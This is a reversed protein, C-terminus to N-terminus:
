RASRRRRWDPLPSSPVGVPMRVRPEIRTLVRPLVEMRSLRSLCYYAPLASLLFPVRWGWLMMQDDTLCVRMTWVAFASLAYALNCTAGVASTMMGMSSRNAAESVYTIV